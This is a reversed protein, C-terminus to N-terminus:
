PLCMTSNTLPSPAAGNLVNSPGGAQPLVSLVFATAIYPACTKVGSAVGGAVAKVNELGWETWSQGNQTPQNEPSPNEANKEEGPEADFFIDENIDKEILSM